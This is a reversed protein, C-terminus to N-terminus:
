WPLPNDASLIHISQWKQDPLSHSGPYKRYAGTVWKLSLLHSASEHFLAGLSVTM